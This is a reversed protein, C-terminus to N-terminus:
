KDVIEKEVYEEIVKTTDIGEFLNGFIGILINCCISDGFQHYLQMDSNGVKRMAEVDERTFAMLKGCELPTLRRIGQNKKLIKPVGREMAPVTTALKDPLCARHDQTNIRGKKDEWSVYNKYEKIATVTGHNGMVTPAIFEKDVISAANHGSPSYNGIKKVKIMYQGGGNTKLCRALYNADYILQDQEYNTDTRKAVVKLEIM